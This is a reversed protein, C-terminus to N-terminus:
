RRDAARELGATPAISLPRPRMEQCEPSSGPVLTPAATMVAPALRPDPRRPRSPDQRADRDLAGWPWGPYRRAARRESVRRALVATPDRWVPEALADNLDGRTVGLDALMRDNFGALVAADRRHQMVAGVKQAGRVAAAALRQLAQRARGANLSSVTFETM